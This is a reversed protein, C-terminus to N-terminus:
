VTPITGGDIVFEAGNIYSARDSVLFAVLEAVEDPHGTRGVPIGGLSDMLGQRATKLDTSANKALRKILRAAAETEIFGPAVTNVRVGKPAVENSLGKSYNTLAAKAAAYALTADYLPLTRQISSIHIIVGSNQELMKPLFARDLRVAAFLNTNFTQQWDQDSLALAGGSPASSGGVNNVLIDVAGLRALVGEIVKQVGDHTSIDAEIFLDPLQLNPPESRATTMVTAGVQRLRKVIAEGMGKTGGTVLAKRDILEGGDPYANRMPDDNRATPRAAIDPWENAFAVASFTLRVCLNVM